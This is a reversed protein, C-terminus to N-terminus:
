LRVKGERYQKVIGLAVLRKRIETTGAGIQGLIADRMLREPENDKIYGYGGFIQIAERAIYEASETAHLIASAASVSDLPDRKLLGLSDEALLRSTRLRTYMYALKEQILQFEYLFKGSQKRETSYKLALELARRAVGIFIFSLIVRESNLGSLIIRKGDGRKGILRNYPIQLSDFYIEGTPSGRMGMKDFKKGRSFGKDDSLVCYANYGDGFRSYVLFLDAVPANTIFTKSGTISFGNGNETSVTKMNLADSGSEPETLALSGIFEGSSLKPVYNERLEESGNRYLNDLCLNSHAGYSLALSASYYGIEEEIMAQAEYGLASGGYEEPITVGLFGMKGMKKFVDAPFYDQSDIKSSIPEVERKLFERVTDRLIQNEDQSQDTM